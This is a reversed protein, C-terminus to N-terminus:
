EALTIKLLSQFILEKEKGTLYAVLMHSHFLERDDQIFAGHNGLYSKMHGVIEGGLRILQPRIVSNLDVPSHLGAFNDSLIDARYRYQIAKAVLIQTAFFDVVSASDLGQDRANEVSSALVVREREIDEIPLHNVAKYLAVDQMLSLRQNILNFVVVSDVAIAQQSSSGLYIIFLSTILRSM